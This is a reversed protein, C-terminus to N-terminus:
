LKYKRVFEVAQSIDAEPADKVEREITLYGTYNVAQLAKFYLDFNVDGKGLPLERFFEGAAVMEAIKRHDVGDGYGVFGYVDRPDTKKLQVGDKVHTHVIYDQLIEVGTVPDDGTVMVMNAPDFNVSVGNTSLSDLFQKLTVAKEPGTEIAFYADLSKAYQGLEECAQQLAYYIESNPDEPIIGIHTTVINTGLEVAMDLIRKSQEVKLANDQKNQFGHGGLDGCLASIDLDISTLYNRLEKRASTSMNEPAMEGSVAYIQVGDAGIEKAKKLGEYLPLGFSDVIVGIKNSLQLTSTM